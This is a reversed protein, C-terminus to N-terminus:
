AGSEELPVAHVEYATGELDLTFKPDLPHTGDATFAQGGSSSDFGMKRCWENAKKAFAEALAKEPFARVMWESHGERNSTIGIVVYIESM